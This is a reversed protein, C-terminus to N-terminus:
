GFNARGKVSRGLHFNRSGGRYRCRSLTHQLSCVIGSAVIHPVSLLRVHRSLTPYLFCVCMAHCHPTCVVFACPTVTHPVSFLCVHRSLTPYLCCVCMTHCHPTCVVFVCPTDTHPVSFLRVHHSLIPYLCCVCMAHCHATCVVFVNDSSYVARVHTVNSCMEEDCLAKHSPSLFPIVCLHWKSGITRSLFLILSTFRPPGALWNEHPFRGSFLPSHQLPNLTVM